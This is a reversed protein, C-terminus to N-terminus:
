SLKKRSKKLLKVSEWSTLLARRWKTIQQYAYPAYPLARQTRGAMNLNSNRFTCVMVQEITPRPAMLGSRLYAMRRRGKEKRDDELVM